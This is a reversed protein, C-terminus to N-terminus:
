GRSRETLPEEVLGPKMTELIHLFREWEELTIPWHANIVIYHDHNVPVILSKM